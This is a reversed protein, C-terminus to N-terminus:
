LDHRKGAEDIRYLDYPNIIRGNQYACAGFVSLSYNQKQAETMFIWKIKFIIKKLLKM